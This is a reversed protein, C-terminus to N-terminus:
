FESVFMREWYGIRVFPLGFLLYCLLNAIMGAIVFALMWKMIVKM